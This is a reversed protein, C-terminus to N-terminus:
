LVLNNFQFLNFFSNFRLSFKYTKITKSPCLHANNVLSTISNLYTFINNSKFLSYYRSVSNLMVALSVFKSIIPLSNNRLFSSHEKLFPTSSKVWVLRLVKFSLTKHFPPRNTNLFTYLLLPILSKFSSFNYINFNSLILPM